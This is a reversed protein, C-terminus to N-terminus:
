VAGLRTSQGCSAAEPHSSKRRSHFAETGEEYTRETIKVSSRQRWKWSLRFVTDYYENTAEDFRRVRGTQTVFSGDSQFGATRVATVTVTVTEPEPDPEPAPHSVALPTPVLPPAPEQLGIGAYTFEVKAWKGEGIRTFQYRGAKMRRLLTSESIHLLACAQKKSLTKM